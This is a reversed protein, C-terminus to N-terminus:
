RVGAYFHALNELDQATLKKVHRGMHKIMPRSGSLYDDAQFQLYRLWQGALVPTGAEEFATRGDDTHCKACHESAIQEGRTAKDPNVVQDNRFQRQRSFYDAMTVFDADTYGTALRGMVTSPRTGNKFDRMATLLAEKRQGAIAPVTPGASAGDTGHCGGCALSLMDPSPPGAFASQALFLVLPCWPRVWAKRTM